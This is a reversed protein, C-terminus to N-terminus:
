ANKLKEIDIKKMKQFAEGSNRRINLDTSVSSIHDPKLNYEHFLWGPFINLFM